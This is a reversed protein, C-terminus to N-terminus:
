EDQWYMSSAIVSYWIANYFTMNDNTYGCYFFQAFIVFVFINYFCLIRYSVGRISDRIFMLIFIVCVFVPHVQQLLVALFLLIFDFKLWSPLEFDEAYNTNRLGM